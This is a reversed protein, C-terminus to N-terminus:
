ITPRGPLQMHAPEWIIRHYDSMCSVPRGVLFQMHAGLRVARRLDNRLEPPITQRERGGGFTLM